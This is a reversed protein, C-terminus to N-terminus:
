LVVLYLLSTVALAMLSKIRGYMSNSALGTQYCFGGPEGPPKKEKRFYFLPIRIFGGRQDQQM